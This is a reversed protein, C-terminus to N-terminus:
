KMKGITITVVPVTSASKNYTVWFGQANHIVMSFMSGDPRQLLSDGVVTKFDPAGAGGTYDTSITVVKEAQYAIQVTESPSIVFYDQENSKMVPEGLKTRVDMATMGLRVGRYEEYIPQQGKAVIGILLLLLVGILLYTLEVFGIKRKETSYRM